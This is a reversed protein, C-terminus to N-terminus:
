LDRRARGHLPPVVVRATVGGPFEIVQDERLPKAVRVMATGVRQPGTGLLLAEVAGGSGRKHGRLRARFVRSDNAVLLARPPLLNAIDSFVSHVVGDRARDIVMLRSATRTAAPAQAILEEPLRYDVEGTWFPSGTSANSEGANV